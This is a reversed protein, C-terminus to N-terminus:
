KLTLPKDLYFDLVKTKFIFDYKAQLLESQAKSLEKKTNNYDVSNLLGVNFKQESYKFSEESATVKKLSAQHKNLAALADLYAQRINKDVQNKTIELNLEANKIAIRSKAIGSQVQWNNFIPINLSLGITKNDNDKFQKRFSRTKYDYSYVDMLVAYGNETYMGTPEPGIKVKNIQEKSAGSYGTAWSGNLSLSPSMYGFAKKLGIDSSEVNLRASKIEPRNEMAYASIKDPSELISPTDPLNIQPREIDFGETSPLDLMQTLTLYALDLQNKSEVVTLEEASAQAEITLLDGKAMTGADVMKVMRDVQQNTISLQNNAIDLMEQYYLVQLYSTAITLAIDNKYKDADYQSSKLKLQNQRVTNLLQFGNFVTIQSQLYFNNSQVRATAFQNTYRDVTQGYNYSHTAGGNLNPLLNMKSQLLDENAVNVLLQQQKIQLNNALAYNICEELSWIKKVTQSNATTIGVLLMLLGLIIRKMCFKNLQKVTIILYRAMKPMNSNQLLNTKCCFNIQGGVSLKLVNGFM